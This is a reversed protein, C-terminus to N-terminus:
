WILAVIKFLTKGEFINLKGYRGVWLMVLYHHCILDHSTKSTYNPIKTPITKSATFNRLRYRVWFRRGKFLQHPKKNKISEFDGGGLSHQLM